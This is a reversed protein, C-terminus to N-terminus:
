KIKEKEPTIKKSARGTKKYNFFLDNYPLAKLRSSMSGLVRNFVAKDRDSVGAFIEDDIAQFSRVIKDTYRLGKKTLTIFHERRDKPNVKKSIYGGEVLTDIVKVMATKDIALHNCICQQSCGNNASLFHLVSYYREIDLDELSRSLVGYYLKSMILARTGVPLKLDPYAIM